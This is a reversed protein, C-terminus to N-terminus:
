VLGEFPSRKHEFPNYEPMPKKGDMEDLKNITMICYSALDRLTDKVSEEKVLIGGKMFISNIRNVKDNIRTLASVPGFLDYTKGFSDGYDANKANHLEVLERATKEFADIKQTDNEM